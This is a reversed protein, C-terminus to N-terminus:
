LNQNDDLVLSMGWDLDPRIREISVTGIEDSTVKDVSPDSFWKGERPDFWKVSYTSNKRLRRIEVAGPCDKEFYLLFLDREPTHACFAWGIYGRPDGAKNPVVLEANPILEQYRKGYTMAFTRLHKLQAASEWKFADWMKYRSGEEIDAGWIGEAGYMHGGFAGSLFGGYMGSRCYLNDLETGGEAGYKYLEGLNFYGAYYPEGNFVPRTPKSHFMETLYWYHMHERKNGILHLTLWKQPGDHEFNVLTSPNSNASLLNGFPPPGYKDLVMNACANYEEVPVSGFWWDFHIPSLICNHAQYRSFIYQIYRVYVNPWDYYKKWCPTGDRRAVELFPVFGQENLYDMRKDLYKFYEPNIRHVDPFVNEYGPVKGPFLFPRGGENHMDKGSRTVPHVWSDRLVTKEEDDLIIRHPHEDNAWAPFGAIMVVSNFGQKKRFRVYDKFGAEPGIPREIDDEYWRYRHTAGALWTDGVIFFPTGDAYELAHGNSTARVFGRRCNNEAKEEESWEIAEFYGQKNNLGNDDQNSGSIWTWKGTRVPTIRIKFVNGGDWFGYVRKRFDPGVLDLWVDVDMYPNSYTKESELVIEIREWVHFVRKNNDM